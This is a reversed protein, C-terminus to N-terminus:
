AREVSQILEEHSIVATGAKGVVVSAAHNAIVAADLFSAGSTLALTLAATATDGAGVIDFVEREIAPIHHIRNGCFLTMGEHGRTVLVHCGLKKQIERGASKLNTSGSMELAEKINPAIITAGRFIRFNQPKADVVVPKKQRNAISITFKALNPSITGKDYDSLIIGDWENINEKIFRMFKTEINVNIPENNEKDIRVVQRDSSILRTKETTTRKLDVAVARTDLGRVRLLKILEGSAGDHGVVGALSVQAGLARANAAVNAAGGPILTERAVRVIPVSAESSIRNSNGILFRDLMVDGVVLINKTKFEAILQSLNKKM